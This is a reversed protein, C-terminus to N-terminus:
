CQQAVLVTTMGIQSGREEEIMEIMVRLPSAVNSRPGGLKKKKKEGVVISTIPYLGGM